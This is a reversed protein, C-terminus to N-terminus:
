TEKPVKQNQQMWKSVAKVACSESCLHMADPPIRMSQTQFRVITITPLNSLEPKQDEILVWWRSTDVEQASCGNCQYPTPLKM